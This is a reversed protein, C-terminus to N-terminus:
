NGKLSHSRRARIIKSLEKAAIGKWDYREIFIRGEEGIRSAAEVNELLSAVKRAMKDIDGKPVTIIKDEFVESYVPLRYAVVPLECSMAEAIAIGWGELYSPFIFIRSSYLVKFKEKEPVFGLILVNRELKKKKVFDDINHTEEGHGCLVLKADPKSEVVLEWVRVLDYIGKHKVHRGIFCGDYLKKPHSTFHQVNVGNDTLIIRQKEIGLSSLFKQTHRNVTFILDASTKVLLAGLCNGMISITRPFGVNAYPIDLSHFYVVFKSRPIILKLFLAPIVDYPYHSSAVIVDFYQRPFFFISKCIRLFYLILIAFTGNVNREFLSNYVLAKGHLRDKCYNYGLRPILFNISNGKSWHKTVELMHEEGGSTKTTWGNSLILIRM